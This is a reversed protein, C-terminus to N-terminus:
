GDDGDANNHNNDWKEDTQRGEEVPMELMESKEFKNM